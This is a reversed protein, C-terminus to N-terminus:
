KLGKEAEKPPNVTALLVVEGSYVYGVVGGEVFKVPVPYQIDQVRYGKPLEWEFEIPLGADGPNTWYIHWGPEITFEIGMTFPQSLDSEGVVLKPKVLSSGDQFQARASNFSTFLSLILTLLVFQLFLYRKPKLALMVTPNIILKSFWVPTKLLLKM